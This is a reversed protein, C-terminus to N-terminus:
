ASQVLGIGRLFLLVAALLVLMMLVHYYAKTNLMKSLLSGLFLGVFGCVITVVYVHWFQLHLSGYLFYFFPRLDLVSVVCVNARSFEKPINLYQFAYMLPPGPIGVMSGEIGSFVSSMLLVPLDRLWRLRYYVLFKNNTIENSSYYGKQISESNEFELRCTFIYYAAQIHYIICRRITVIIKSCKRTNSKTLKDRPNIKSLHRNNEINDAQQNDNSNIDQSSIIAENQLLNNSASDLQNNKYVQYKQDSFLQQDSTLDNTVIQDIRQNRNSIYPKKAEVNGTGNQILYRSNSDSLKDLIITKQADVINSNSINSQQIKERNVSLSAQELICPQKNILLQQQELDDRSDNTKLKKKCQEWLM